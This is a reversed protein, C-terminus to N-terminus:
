RLDGEADAPLTVGAAAASADDETLEGAPEGALSEPPPLEIPANEEIVWPDSM